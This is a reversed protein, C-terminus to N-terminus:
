NLEFMYGVSRISLFYKPEKPNLEFLKRFNLIYNDITRGSPNEDKHWLQEIIEDRSVVNNIKSTLIKLLGIERKSLHIKEGTYTEIEFSDFNISNNGFYFANKIVTKETRKILNNIRLLLEELEFPKTVYDDAGLKLGEIKDISQNRASLFIVPINPKKLKFQKCLEFGNVDPLMIDLLILNLNNKNQEFEKIANNGTNAIKTYFGDLQLNLELTAALTAEDEIILITKNKIM